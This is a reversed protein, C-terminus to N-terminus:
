KTGGNLALRGSPSIHYNAVGIKTLHGLAALRDIVRWYPGLFEGKTVGNIRGSAVALMELQAKTLGSM